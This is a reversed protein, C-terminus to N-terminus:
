CLVCSFFITSIAYIFIAKKQDIRLPTRVAYKRGNTRPDSKDSTSFYVRDESVLYCGPERRQIEERPVNGSGPLRQGDELIEQDSSGNWHPLGTIATYVKSAEGDPQINTLKLPGRYLDLKGSRNCFIVTSLILLSLCAISILWLLKVKIIKYITRLTNITHSKM